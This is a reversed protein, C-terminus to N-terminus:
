FTGDAASNDKGGTGQTADFGGPRPAFSSKQEFPVHEIVQIGSLKLSGAGSNPNKTVFMEVLALSGNGIALPKGDSDLLPHNMADVVTINAPKGQRNFEDRKITLRGIGDDGVRIRDLVEANSPNVVKESINHKKFLALMEERKKDDLLLTVKYERQESKYKNVPAHVCAFEVPAEFQEFQLKSGQAM